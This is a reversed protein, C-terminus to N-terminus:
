VLFFDSCLKVCIYDCSLLLLRPVDTHSSPFLVGSIVGFVQSFIYIFFLM